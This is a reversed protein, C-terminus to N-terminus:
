LRFLYGVVFSYIKYAVFSVLVTVVSFLMIQLIMFLPSSQVVANVDIVGFAFGHLLYMTFCAGSLKNIVVNQIRIKSFLLFVIIAQIIVFPNCYEYANPEVSYGSIKDLYSWFFIIATNVVFAGALLRISCKGFNSRSLYTGICYMLMFQVITYGYQSGYMGISSLGNFQKGTWQILIDVFTPYVSFLLAMTLVFKLVQSETLNNLLVNLYPACIYLVVYLVVFWNQPLFSIALESFSLEIRGTIILLIQYLLRFIVVQVLLGVPKRWNRRNSRSLFFGSILVFVNVSCIFLAQLLRLM